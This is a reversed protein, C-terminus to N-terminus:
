SCCTHWTCKYANLVRKKKLDSGPENSIWVAVQEEKKSRNLHGRGTIKQWRLLGWAVLVWFWTDKLVSIIVSFSYLKLSFFPLFMCNLLKLTNVKERKATWKTYLMSDTLAHVCCDRCHWSYGAYWLSWIVRWADQTAANDARQARGLGVAAGNRMDRLSLYLCYFHFAKLLELHMATEALNQYVSPNQPSVDSLRTSRATVGVQSNM